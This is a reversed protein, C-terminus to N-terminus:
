KACGSIAGGRGGHSASAEVGFEASSGSGCVACNCNPDTVDSITRETVTAIELGRPATRGSAVDDSRLAL